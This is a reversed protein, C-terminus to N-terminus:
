CAAGVTQRLTEITKPHWVVITDAGACMLATATTIEWSISRTDLDGWSASFDESKAEKAKFSEEGAFVIIPMDLMSDGAAAALKIREIISYGYDLGYGVCGMGPDILINEARLGLDTSLINLEKTLNIDIPTRLVLKLSTGVVLPVITKYNLDQAAAVIHAYETNLCPILRPLLAEDLQKQGAGRIILPVTARKVIEKLTDVCFEIENTGEINFVIGVHSAGCQIASKQVSEFMKFPCSVIDAGWFERLTQPYNEDTKIPMELVYTVSKDM